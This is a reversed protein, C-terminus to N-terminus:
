KVNEEAKIKRELKTCVSHLMHVDEESLHGMRELLRNVINPNQELGIDMFISHIRNKLSSFEGKAPSGLLEKQPNLVLPSLIYAFVMVAQALNLSPYVARMNLAVLADCKEIEENLLGCEERGFVIGVNQITRGKSRLLHPLDEGGFYEQRKGRRRATTGVIFDLDSIASEFSDFVQANELIFTSGHAVGRAYDTLYDCPTVLRLFDFGMTNMARAAAGVNEPRQPAVLIFYITM